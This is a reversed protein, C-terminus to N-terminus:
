LVTQDVFSPKQWIGPSGRRQDGARDREEDGHMGGSGHGDPRCLNLRRLAALCAFRATATVFLVSTNARASRCLGSVVRVNCSLKCPPDHGAIGWFLAVTAHQGSIPYSVCTRRGHYYNCMGGLGLARSQLTAGSFDTSQPAMGPM